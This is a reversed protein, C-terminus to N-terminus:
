FDFVGMDEGPTSGLVKRQWSAARVLLSVNIHMNEMQYPVYKEFMNM